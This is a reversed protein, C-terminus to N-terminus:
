PGRVTSAGIRRHAVASSRHGPGRWRSFECLTGAHNTHGLREPCLDCWLVPVGGPLRHIGALLPERDILFDTDGMEGMASLGEILGSLEGTEPDRDYRGGVPDPTAGSIGRLKLAVSNAVGNHGSAHIVWIPHDTTVDDLEARTPMRGEAIATNDFLVGMIWEGVPTEAARASLRRLAQSMDTCDGRPPASLDVRFLAIFGPDPFHGHPDIFAPMMTQGALDIERAGPAAVARMEPLAGVALIREGETLVAEVTPRADEMTLITGNLYLTQAREMSKM